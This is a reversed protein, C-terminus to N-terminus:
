ACPVFREVVRRAGPALIVAFGHRDVSSALADMFTPEDPVPEYVEIWTSPDDARRLVRGHVGTARAVDRVIAEVTDRTKPAAPESVRYYVYVSSRV